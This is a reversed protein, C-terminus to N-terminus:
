LEFDVYVPSSPQDYPALEPGGRGLRQVLEAVVASATPHEFLLTAPLSEGSKAQLRNRIELATLSDLGIRQLPQDMPLAAASSWRLAAATEARVLDVVVREREAGSLAAIRERLSGASEDVTPQAASRVLVRLLPGVGAHDRMADLDLPALVLHPERRALARAFLEVGQAPSLAGFGMRALRARRADDLRAAMGAGTWPGWGLSQGPLGRARRQHALGDLFANAAAYNAQGASGLVSVASGCMVFFDLDAGQTLEHLNWAGEVKPEFVKTFREANQDDLVGDDLVGAAHVVGRLPRDGPVEALLKALAARDAVDVSAVTVRAGAASVEAIAEAAGPADAGRRSTLILHPVGQRALWLATHRGLAGLGGTVLVTGDVRLPAGATDAALPDPRVLRAVHRRGDRWAVEREGDAADLEQVLGEVSEADSSVDVLVLGLEPRERMVTRGLGWLMTAAPQVEDAEAVAVASSTVWCM